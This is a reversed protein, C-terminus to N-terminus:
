TSPLPSRLKKREIPVFAAACKRTIWPDSPKHSHSSGTPGLHAFGIQPAELIELQNLGQQFSQMLDAGRAVLGTIAFKEEILIGGQQQQVEEAGNNGAQTPQL